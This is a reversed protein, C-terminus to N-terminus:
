EADLLARQDKDKQAFANLHDQLKTQVSKSAEAYEKRIRKELEKIRRETAEQGPDIKEM